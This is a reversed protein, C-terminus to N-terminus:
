TMLISTQSPYVIRSQPSLSGRILASPGRQLKKHSYSVFYLFGSAARLLFGSPQGGRTTIIIMSSGLLLHSLVEFVKKLRSSRLVSLSASLVANIQQM